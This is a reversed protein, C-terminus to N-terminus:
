GVVKGYVSVTGTIATIEVRLYDISVLDISYLYNSDTIEDTIATMSPIKYCGYPKFYETGKPYTDATLKISFIGTSEIKLMMQSADDKVFYDKSGVTSENEFFIINDIPKNTAM